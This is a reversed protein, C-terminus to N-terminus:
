ACPGSRGGPGTATQVVAVQCDIMNIVIVNLLSEVTFDPQWSGPTGSCTLAELCISGGATVHGTYMVCRPSVVRVFFPQRPYDKPFEIQLVIHDQGYMTHLRQLDQNLQKGGPLDDDFSRLKLQWTLLNDGALSLQQIFQFKKAEIDASLHKFEAQVRRMGKLNKWAPTAM